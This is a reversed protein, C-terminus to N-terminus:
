NTARIRLNTGSSGRRRSDEMSAASISGSRIAAQRALGPQHGVQVEGQLRAVVHDQLPHLPPVAAGGGQLQDGVHAGHARIHGEASVQDGAERGLRVLHEGIGRRQHVLRPQREQVDERVAGAGAGRGGPHRGHLALHDLRAGGGQAGGAIRRQRPM